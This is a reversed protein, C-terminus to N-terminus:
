GGLQRELEQIRRLAEAQDRALRAMEEVASQYRVAWAAESETRRMAADRSLNEAPAAELPLEGIVQSVLLGLAKALRIVNDLQPARTKHDRIFKDVWRSDKGTLRKTGSRTTGRFEIATQMAARVRDPDYADVVSSAETRESVDM